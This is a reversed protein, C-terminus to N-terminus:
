VKTTLFFFVHESKLVRHEQLFQATMLRHSWVCTIPRHRGLSYWTRTKVGECRLGGGRRRREGGEEGDRCDGNTRAMSGTAGRRPRMGIWRRTTSSVTSTARVV